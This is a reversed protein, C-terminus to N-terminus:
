EYGMKIKQKNIKKSFVQGRIFNLVRDVLFMDTEEKIKLLNENEMLIKLETTIKHRIQTQQNQKTKKKPSVSTIIPSKM